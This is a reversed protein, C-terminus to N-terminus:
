NPGRYKKIPPTYNSNTPKLMQDMDDSSIGEVDIVSDNFYIRVGIYNTTSVSPKHNEYYNINNTNITMDGIKVLM